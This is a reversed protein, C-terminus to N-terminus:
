TSIGDTVRAVRRERRQAALESREAEHAAGLGPLGFVMDGREAVGHAVQDDLLRTGQVLLFTKERAPDSRNDLGQATCYLFTPVGREILAHGRERYAKERQLMRSKFHELIKVPYARDNMVILLLLKM